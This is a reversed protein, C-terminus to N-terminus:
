LIHYKKDPYPNEELRVITDNIWCCVIDELEGNGHIDVRGWYEYMIIKDKKKDELNYTLNKNLEFDYPQTYPYKNDINNVNEKEIKDLNEYIGLRKLDDLRVERRHVLFSLEKTDFATPDLYINDNKVIEATPKNVIPIEKEVTTVGVQIQQQTEPDIDFIPVEVNKVEGYYEWGTRVIVTGEILLVSLLDTMFNYRDFKKTFFYNLLRESQIAFMDNQSGGSGTLRIITDNSIFPNKLQTKTWEVQKFAERSIFNSGYNKEEKVKGEYINRMNSIYTDTITKVKQAEELDAKLDNLIKLKDM